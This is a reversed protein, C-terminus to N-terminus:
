NWSLHGGDTAGGYSRGWVGGGSLPFRSPLNPLPEFPQFVVPYPRPQDLVPISPIPHVLRNAQAIEAPDAVQKHDNYAKFHDVDIL